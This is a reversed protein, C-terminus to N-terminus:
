ESCRAAPLSGTNTASLTGPMGWVSQQCRSSTFSKPAPGTFSYKSSATSASTLLAYGSSTAAANRPQSHIARSFRQAYLAERVLFGDSTFAKERSMLKCAFRRGPIRAASRANESM